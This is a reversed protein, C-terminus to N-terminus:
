TVRWKYSRRWDAAIVLDKGLGTRGSFAAFADRTSSADSGSQVPSLFPSYFLFFHIFNPIIGMVVYLM